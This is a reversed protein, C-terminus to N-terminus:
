GVPNLHVKGIEIYRNITSRICEYGPSKLGIGNLIVRYFGDEKNGSKCFISEADPIINM